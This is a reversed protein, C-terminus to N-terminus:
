VGDEYGYEIIMSEPLWRIDPNTGDPKTLEIRFARRKLVHVISRISVGRVGKTGVRVTSTMTPIQNPRTADLLVYKVPLNFEDAPAAPKPQIKEAASM